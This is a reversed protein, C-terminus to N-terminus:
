KEGFYSILGYVVAGTVVGAALAKKDNKSITKENDSNVEDAFQGTRWGIFKGALGIGVKEDVDVIIKGDKIRPILAQEYHKYFEYGVFLSDESKKGIVTQCISAAALGALGSCLSSANMVFSNLIMGIILIKKM